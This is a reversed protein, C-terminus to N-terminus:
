SAKISLKVGLLRALLFPIPLPRPGSAAMPDVFESDSEQPSHGASAFSRSVSGRSRSRWSPLSPSSQSLQPPIKSGYAICASCHAKPAAPISAGPLILNHRHEFSCGGVSAGVDGISPSSVPTIAELGDPRGPSTVNRLFPTRYAM